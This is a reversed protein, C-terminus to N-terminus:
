RPGGKPFKYGDRKMSRNVADVLCRDSLKSADGRIKFWGTAFGFDVELDSGEGLVYALRQVDRESVM